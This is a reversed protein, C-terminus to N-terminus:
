RLAEVGLRALWSAFKPAEEILGRTVDMVPETKATGFAAINALNGQGEKKFGVEVEVGHASVEVDDEVYRPLAALRRHGTADKKMVRKINIATKNGLPLLLAELKAPAAALQAAFADLERTDIRFGDPM